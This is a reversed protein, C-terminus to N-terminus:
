CEGRINARTGLLDMEREEDTCIALWILLHRSHDPQIAEEDGEVASISARLWSRLNLRSAVVLMFM